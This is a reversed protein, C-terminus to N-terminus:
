KVCIIHTIKFFALQKDEWYRLEREIEFVSCQPNQMSILKGQEVLVLLFM